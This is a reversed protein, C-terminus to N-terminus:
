VVHRKAYTDESIELTQRYTESDPPPTTQRYTEENIPVFVKRTRQPQMIYPIPKFDQRSKPRYDVAESLKVTGWCGGIRIDNGKLRLDLIPTAQSSQMPGSQPKRIDQYVLDVDEDEYGAFQPQARLPSKREQIVTRLLQPPVRPKPPSTQFARRRGNYTPEEETVASGSTHSTYTSESIILEDQIDEDQLSHSSQSDDHSSPIDDMDGKPKNPELFSLKANWSSDLTREAALSHDASQTFENPITDHVTFQESQSQQDEKKENYTLM